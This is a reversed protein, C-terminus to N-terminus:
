SFKINKEYIIIVLFVNVIKEGSLKKVSYKVDSVILALQFIYRVILRGRPRFIKSFFVLIVVRNKYKSM